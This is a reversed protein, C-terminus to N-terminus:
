VGAGRLGPRSQERAWPLDTRVSPLPVKSPGALLAYSKPALYREIVGKWKRRTDRRRRPTNPPLRIPEDAQSVKPRVPKPTKPTDPEHTPSHDPPAEEPGSTAPEPPPEIASETVPGIAPKARKRYSQGRRISPLGDDERRKKIYGYIASPPVGTLRVAEDMGMDLFVDAAEELILRSHNRTGGEVCRLRKAHDKILSERAKDKLRPTVLIFKGPAIEIEEKGGRMGHSIARFKSMRM